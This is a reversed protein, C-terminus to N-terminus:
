SHCSIPANPLSTKVEALFMEADSLLNKVDVDTIIMKEGNKMKGNRHVLIHRNHFHGSMVQNINKLSSLNIAKFSDNIIEMKEYPAEMIHKIVRQEWLGQGRNHLYKDKSEKLSKPLMDNAYKDFLFEDKTITSLIISCVLADIITIINIYLFKMIKETNHFNNSVVEDMIDKVESLEENTEKFCDDYSKNLYDAGEYLSTFFTKAYYTAFITQPHEDDIILYKGNEDEKNTELLETGEPQTDNFCSADICRFYRTNILIGGDVYYKKM